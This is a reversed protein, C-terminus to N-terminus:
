ALAQWAAPNDEPPAAGDPEAVGADPVAGAVLGAPVAVGYDIFWLM